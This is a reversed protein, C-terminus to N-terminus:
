VFVFYRVTQNEERCNKETKHSSRFFFLLSSRRLSSLFEFVVLIM